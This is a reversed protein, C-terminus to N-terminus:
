AAWSRNGGLEPPWEDTTALVAADRAARTSESSLSGAVHAIGVFSYLFIIVEIVIGWPQGDIADLCLDEIDECAEM